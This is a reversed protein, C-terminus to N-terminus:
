QNLAYELTRLSHDAMHATAVAYGVSRAVAIKKPDTVENAFAICDFSANRADGVSAKGESWKKATNTANTLGSDIQNPLLTFVNEACQCAWLILQKHEKKAL